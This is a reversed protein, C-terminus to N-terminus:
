TAPRPATSRPTLVALPIVRDTKSQYQAFNAHRVVVTNWVHDRESGQLVRVDVTSTDGSIQVQATDARRLNRFWQPETDQGAASGVVLYSGDHMLYALPVTRPEGTRRGRVTLLLVPLGAVSKLARGGTRRYLTSAVTNGLRMVSQKLSM